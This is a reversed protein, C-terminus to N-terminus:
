DMKEIDVKKKDADVKQKKRQQKCNKKNTRIIQQRYMALM